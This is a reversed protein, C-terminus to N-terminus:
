EHITRKSRFDPDKEAAQVAEREQPTLSSKDYSLAAEPDMGHNSGAIEPLPTLKALLARTSEPDNRAMSRYTSESAAAIKGAALAASVMDEDAPLPAPQPPRKKTLQDVRAMVETETADKSMGLISAVHTKKSKAWDTTM